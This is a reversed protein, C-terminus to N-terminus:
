PSPTLTLTGQDTDVKAASTPQETFADTLTYDSTSGDDFYVIEGTGTGSGTITTGDQSTSFTETFSFTRDGVGNDKNTSVFGTLTGGTLTLTATGTLTCKSGDSAFKCTNAVLTASGNATATPAKTTSLKGSYSISDGPNAVVPVSGTTYDLTGASGDAPNYNDLDTEIVLPSGTTATDPAGAALALQFTATRSAGAPLAQATDPIVFGDIQGDGATTGSLPVNVFQGNTAPDKYSLMLDSANLGASGNSDGTLHVDFRADALDANGSPNVGTATFTVAPGGAILSGPTTQTVTPADSDDSGQYILVENTTGQSLDTAEVYCEANDTTATYTVVIQGNADTTATQGRPNGLNGCSGQTLTSAVDLRTSLFMQDGAVPEGNADLDTITVTSTASGDAPLAAPSADLSVDSSVANTGDLARSRRESNGRSNGRANERAHARAMPAVYPTEVCGKGVGLAAYAADSFETQTYYDHGNIVTNYPQPGFGIGQDFMGLAPGYNGACEDGIENGGSDIWDRNAGQLPDTITENIEHSLTNITASGAESPAPVSTAYCGTTDFPQDVFLATGGGKAAFSGHLGCYYSDSLLSQGSSTFQEQVAYPFLLIYIHGLDAPLGNATLVSQLEAQYQQNTICATYPAKVPCQGATPFANTDTIPAGAHIVYHINTTIGNVTQSYQTNNAYVNTTKGSDAAIDTLYQNVVTPYAANDINATGDVYGYGPPLWYIPTITVEGTQTATGVVPGAHQTLPPSCTACVGPEGLVQGAQAKAPATSRHAAPSAQAHGTLGLSFMLVAGTVAAM